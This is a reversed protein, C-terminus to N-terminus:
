APVAQMLAAYHRDAEVQVDRTPNHRVNNRARNCALCQRRGQAANCALLNPAILLHGRPCHTKGANRHTGHRVQDAINESPTAWRLNAARNDLRDGNIHAVQHQPTPRPGHFVECVMVHINRTVCKQAGFDWVNILACNAGGICLRLPRGKPGIVTGDNGVLYGPHVLWPRREVDTM